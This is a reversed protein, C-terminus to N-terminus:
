SPKDLAHRVPVFRYKTLLKCMDGKDMPVGVFFNQDILVFLKEATIGIAYIGNKDRRVKAGMFIDAYKWIYRMPTRIEECKYKQVPKAM